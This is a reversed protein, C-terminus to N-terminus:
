VKLRAAREDVMRGGCLLLRASSLGDDPWHLTGMLIQRGPYQEWEVGSATLRQYSKASTLENEMRLITM